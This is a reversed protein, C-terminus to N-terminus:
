EGKKPKATATSAEQKEKFAKPDANCDAIEQALQKAKKGANAIIGRTTQSGQLVAKNLAESLKPEKYGQVTSDVDKPKPAKPLDTDQLYKAAREVPITFM